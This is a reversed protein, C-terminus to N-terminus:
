EPPLTKKPRHSHDTPFNEIRRRLGAACGPPEYPPKGILGSPRYSRSTKRYLENLMKEASVYKKQALLVAVKLLGIQLNQPQKEMELDLLNVANDFEKRSMYIGTIGKLSALATEPNNLLAKFDKIAQDLKGQARYVQALRLRFMKSEPKKQIIYQYDSEADEYRKAAVYVRARLIRARLNEPQVNLVQNLETLAM